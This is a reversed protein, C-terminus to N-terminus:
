KKNSPKLSLKRRPKDNGSGAANPKGKASSSRPKPKDDRSRSTSPRAKDRAYEPKPARDSRGAATSSNSNSTSRGGESRERRVAP